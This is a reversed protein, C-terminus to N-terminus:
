EEQCCVAGRQALMDVAGGVRGLIDTPPHRRHHGCDAGRLLQFSVNGHL